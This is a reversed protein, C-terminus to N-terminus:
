HATRSDHYNSGRSKFDHGWNLKARLLDFYSRKSLQILNIRNSSYRIIIEDHTILQLPTFGDASLLMEANKKQIVLKIPKDAPLILPRETLSHPCIPTLLFANVSPDVIPGGAALSYATSGSPTAIIIGDAQFVTIFENGCWAAIAALKPRSSRNIFIDNLCYLKKLESSGRMVSAEIFMRSILTYDNNKIKDLNAELDEPGIDTLFGLGGMNIGIVPKNSFKCLHVAALFTGDGGVSIVTDAESVLVSETPAIQDPDAVIGAMEPHFLLSIDNGAAWTCLRGLLEQILKTKKFAIIGICRVPNM